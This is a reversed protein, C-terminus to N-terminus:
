PLKRIRCYSSRLLEKLELQKNNSILSFVSALDLCATTESISGLSMQFFRKREAPNGRKGNGEALTLIASAIARRIQDALFGYGKPWSAVLEAVAKAVHILDRYCDLKEHGMATSSNKTVTTHSASMKYGDMFFLIQAWIRKDM